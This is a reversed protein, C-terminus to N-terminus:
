LRSLRQVEAWIEDFERQWSTLDRCLASSGVISLLGTPAFHCYLASDLRNRVAQPPLCHHMQIMLASCQKCANVNVELVLLRRCCRLRQASAEDIQKHVAGSIGGSGTGGCSTSSAGSAGASAASVTTFLGSSAIAARLDTKTDATLQQVCAAIRQPSSQAREAGYKQQWQSVAARAAECAADFRMTQTLVTQLRQASAHFLQVKVALPEISWEETTQLLRNRQIGDARKQM